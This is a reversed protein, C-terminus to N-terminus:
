HPPPIFDTGGVNPGPPPTPAGPPAWQQPPPPAPAWQRPHPSPPPAWQGSSPPPPAWQGTPAGYPPSGYPAPAGYQPPGWLAANAMVHKKTNREAIYLFLVGILGTFFCIIGWLIASGGWPGKRYQREFKQVDRYCAIAIACPIILFVLQM